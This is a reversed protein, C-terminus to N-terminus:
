GWHLYSQLSRVGMPGATLAEIALVAATMGAMTTCCPVGAEIAASRILYGDTRARAGFPTNFVIDVDGRAIRECVDPADTSAVESVKPVVEVPVGARRLVSATGSTALLTFGLDALRKAPWIVARKDRDAVSVFATGKLPLAAGAAAQAKAFAAGFSADIGMVEGTSRMEPGLMADAGPFREFPLVVDKVAVHELGDLVDVPPVLGVARLEALTAGTMVRTAVKALPVGTAKSVFPVTRAARPNAELVFVTEDKIACQVNILGRV